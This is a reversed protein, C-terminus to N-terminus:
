IAMSAKIDDFGLPSYAWRPMYGDTAVVRDVEPGDDDIVGNLMGDHEEVEDLRLHVGRSTDMWDEAELLLGFGDM